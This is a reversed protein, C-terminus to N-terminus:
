PLLVIYFSKKFYGEEHTLYILLKNSFYYSECSLFVNTQTHTNNVKCHISVVCHKAYDAHYVNKEPRVVSFIVGSFCKGM